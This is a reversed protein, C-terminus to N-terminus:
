TGFTRMAPLELTDRGSLRDAVDSALSATDQLRAATQTATTSVVALSRSELFVVSYVKTPVGDASVYEISTWKSRRGISPGNVYVMSRTDVTGRIEGMFAEQFGILSADVAVLPIPSNLTVQAIWVRHLGSRSKATANDREYAILAASEGGQEFGGEARSWGWSLDALSIAPAQESSAAGGTSGAPDRASGPRVPRAEPTSQFFSCGSLLVVLLFAALALLPRTRLTGESPHLQACWPV